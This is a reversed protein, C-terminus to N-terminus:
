KSKLKLSLRGAISSLCKLAAEFNFDGVLESLTEIEAGTLIGSLTPKADVIFDAAEVNAV